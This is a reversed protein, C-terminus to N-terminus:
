EVNEKYECGLVTLDYVPHELTSLAPSSSFMWGSFVTVPGEGPRLERIELLAANEPRDEPAAKWCRRAIIELNGFRMVVGLPADITSVRATVKNMGQLRVANWERPPEPPAASAPPPKKKERAKEPPPEPPPEEGEGATIAGPPPSLEIVRYRPAEAAYAAQGGMAMLVTLFYPLRM